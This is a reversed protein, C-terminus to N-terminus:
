VLEVMEMLAESDLLIALQALVVVVALAHIQTQTQEALLVQMVKTQQEQVRFQEEV